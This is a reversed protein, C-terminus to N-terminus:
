DAEVYEGQECQVGFATYKYFCARLTVVSVAGAPGRSVSGRYIRAIVPVECLTLAASTVQSDGAAPRSTLTM